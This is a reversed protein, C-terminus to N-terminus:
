MIDLLKVFFEQGAFHTQQLIFFLWGVACIAEGEVQVIRSARGTPFNREGM